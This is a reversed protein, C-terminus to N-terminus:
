PCFPAVHCCAFVRYNVLILPVAFWMATPWSPEWKSSRRQGWVKCQDGHVESWAGRRAASVPYHFLVFRHPPIYVDISSCRVSWNYWACALKKRIVYDEFLWTIRLWDRSGWCIMHDEVLWTAENWAQFQFPSPRVKSHQNTCALLTCLDVNDWALRTGLRTGLGEWGLM